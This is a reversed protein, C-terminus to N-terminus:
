LDIHAAVFELFFIGVFQCYPFALIWKMRSLSACLVAAGFYGVTPTCGPFGCSWTYRSPGEPVPVSGSSSGKCCDLVHVCFHGGLSACFVVRGRLSSPVAELKKKFLSCVFM